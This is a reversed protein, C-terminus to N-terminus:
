KEIMSILNEWDILFNRFTYKFVSNSNIYENVSMNKEQLAELISTNNIFAINETIGAKDAIIALAEERSYKTPNFKNVVVIIKADPNLIKFDNYLKPLIAMNISNFEVPIILIKAARLAGTVQKDVFGGCDIITNKIGKPKPTDKYKNITTALDGLQNLAISSNIPDNTVYYSNNLEKTLAFSLSTKGVGGKTSYLTIFNM